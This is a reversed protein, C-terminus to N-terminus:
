EYEVSLKVLDIGDTFVSRGAEKMYYTKKYHERLETKPILSICPSISYMRISLRAAFAILGGAIRDYKKQHGRNEKTTALLRIEIRSESDIFDLSVLGLIEDQGKVTLKYVNFEKEEKLDFYFREGELRSYDHETVPLIEVEIRENTKTQVVYM